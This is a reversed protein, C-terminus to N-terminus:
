PIVPDGIVDSRCGDPRTPFSNPLRVRIAWIDKLKLPAKQGVLKGKSWPVHRTAAHNYQDM